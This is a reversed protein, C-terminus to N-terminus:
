PLKIEAFKISASSSDTSKVSLSIARISFGDVDAVSELLEYLRLRSAEM